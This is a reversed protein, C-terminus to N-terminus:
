ELAQYDQLYVVYRDLFLCLRKAGHPCLRKPNILYPLQSASRVYLSCAGCATPKCCPVSELVPRKTSTEGRPQDDACWSM